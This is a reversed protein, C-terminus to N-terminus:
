EGFKIDASCTMNWRLRDDLRDLNFIATYVIDGQKNEGLSQIKVLTGPYQQDPIADFTISAQNGEALYVVNLETLNTTEVQWDSFNAMLLVPVGTAIYQGIKLDNSVIEGDFPAKLETNELSAKASELQATANDIKAQAIAIESPDPGNKLIEYRRQAEEYLVKSYALNAEAQSIKLDSATGTLQNYKSVAEEYSKQAESLKTLLNARMLNDEPKNKYPEYAEEAAKLKNEAFVVNARAIDIDTQSVEGSTLGALQREATQLDVPANALEKLAEAAQIPAQNYLDALAKQSTALELEAAAIASHIQEQNRLSAIIQGESVVDGDKVLVQEVLGSTNFSLDVYQIPVLKCKAVVGDASKVVEQVQELTNTPQINIQSAAIRELTMMTQRNLLILYTIVVIAALVSVFIAARKM